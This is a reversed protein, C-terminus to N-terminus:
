GGTQKIKVDLIGADDENAIKWMERNANVIDGNYLGVCLPYMNAGTCPVSDTYIVHASHTVKKSLRTTNSHWLDRTVLEKVTTGKQYQLDDDHADDNYCKVWRTEAQRPKEPPPAPSPPDM